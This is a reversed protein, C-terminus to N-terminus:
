PVPDHGGRHFPHCKAIRRIALWSGRAVGHKVIARAAYESCSPVFRCRSPLLPSIARQYIRIPAVALKRLM